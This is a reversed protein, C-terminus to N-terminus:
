DEDEDKEPIISELRHMIRLVQQLSEKGQVQLQNVLNLLLEADEPQITITIEDM